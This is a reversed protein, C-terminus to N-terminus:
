FFYGAPAGIASKKEEQCRFSNLGSAFYQFVVFRTRREEGVVWAHPIGLSKLCGIYNESQELASFLMM